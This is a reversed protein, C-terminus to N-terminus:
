RLMVLARRVVQRLDCLLKAHPVNKFAAHLAHAILHPDINLQKVRLAIGVEPSLGVIPLQSVDKTHLTLDGSSDCLRQSRLEGALFLLDDGGFRCIIGLSVIRIKTPRAESARSFERATGLKES